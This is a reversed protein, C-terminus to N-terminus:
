NLGATNDFTQYPGSPSAGFSVNAQLVGSANYLNVADGGTSLGVGSGGYTGIQLNVPAHGGFWTDIFAAKLAAIQSASAGAPAEIFIVSEGVAVSGVGSMAVANGFANSNDDMKWGTLNVAVAGTNTVEFWDAAGPSNGSAWPAVETIRVTPQPGEAVDTLNLSFNVSADPTSGLTTDDVNVTVAYNAKTEFDLVTGAKIYLGTSDAEFFAADAGSVSINNTGLGDDTVVIDAVKIRAATSTGEAISTIESSLGIATPAHNIPAAVGGASGPSGIESGMTPPNITFAGNVGNASLTSITGNNIGAANDFTQWPASPDSAGFAVKAQLVGSSNYLNLQDGGTSLGIGSGSYTGVQLGAPVNNGFWLAKFAAVNSANGELFIVSEGAAISTIGNLAVASGFSASDDDVKWGSINVAQSGTNTIEFWDVGIPSNGSSWPAVESIILHTGTGGENVINTVNLTYNTSADPSSGVSADDVNVTVSYSTKTEYDLVTGAKIYLGSADVEFKAADAGTLTFVNNGLGDDTLVIDAVKIRSATSTNELISTVAGSLALATPASNTAAAPAYVWLQPHDFDGGGEESVLYIKGDPGMTMGEVTMAALDIGSSTPPAQLTLSSLIHGARDVEVIKGSEQSLILLNGQESTGIINPNSSLAYVDSFDSLGLLAPDFLNISDTTTASGNSATGHAFDATTQFIGLPTKEKVLIFGGSLPDYSVGELGVNGINTGLDVTQANARTLTTGADYTFQVIQRDREETFVFKGNGVYTISETDYFETGQPSNGQALTMTNILQGTLSVQTVSTGGDGVIFLTNTDWNYTVGSAEQALLNGSPAATRTPEPLDYRGVRVYNSLDIAM